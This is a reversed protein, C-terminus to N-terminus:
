FGFEMGQLGSWQDAVARGIAMCYVKLLVLKTTKNLLSKGSVPNLARLLGYTWLCKRLNRLYQRSIFPGYRTSILPTPNQEISPM